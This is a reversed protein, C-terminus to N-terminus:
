YGEIVIIGTYATTTDPAISFETLSTSVVPVSATNSTIEAVTNFPVPFTYTQATTSDNEYGDLYIIVKKYTDQQAPMSAIFSGATTGSVTIQDNLGLNNEIRVVPYTQAVVNIPPNNVFNGHIINDHFRVIQVSDLANPINLAYQTYATTSTDSTNGDIFNDYIDGGGGHVTIANTKVFLIYNGTVICRDSGVYIGAYDRYIINNVVKNNYGQANIAYADPSIEQIFNSDIIVNYRFSQVASNGGLNFFYNNRVIYPGYSSDQGSFTDFVINGGDGKVSLNVTSNQFLSGEILIFSTGANNAVYSSNGPIADFICNIIYGQFCAQWYIGGGYGTITNNNPNGFFHLREFIITGGSQNVYFFSDNLGNAAYLLSGVNVNLNNMTNTTSNWSTNGFNGAGEGIIVLPANPTQIMIKKSIYFVGIGIKITGGYPLYNVAEQIGCTQTLPVGSTVSPNYSDPGFDYGDNYETSLGNAIGKASVTIEPVGPTRDKSAIYWFGDEQIVYQITNPDNAM